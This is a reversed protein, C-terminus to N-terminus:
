VPDLVCPALRKPEGICKADGREFTVTWRRVPAQDVYPELEKLLPRGEAFSERLRRLYDPKGDDHKALAGLSLVIRKGIIPRGLSDKMRKGSVLRLYARSNSRYQEIHM